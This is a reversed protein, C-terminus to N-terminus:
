FPNFNANRNYKSHPKRTNKPKLLDLSPGPIPPKSEYSVMSHNDDDLLGPYFEISSSGLDMPHVLKSVIAIQDASPGVVNTINRVFSGDVTITELSRASLPYPDVQPSSSLAIKSVAIRFSIKNIFSSQIHVYAYKGGRGLNSHFVNPNPKQKVNLIIVNDSESLLPSEHHLTERAMHQESKSLKEDEPDSRTVNSDTSDSDVDDITPARVLQKGSMLNDILSSFGAGKKNSIELSAHRKPSSLLPVSVVSDVDSESLAFSQKTDVSHHAATPSFSENEGSYGNEFKTQDTKMPSLPLSDGLVAARIEALQKHVDKSLRDFRYNLKQFHRDIQPDKSVEGVMSRPLTSSMMSKKKAALLKAEKERVQQMQIDLIWDKINLSSTAQLPKTSLVFIKDCAYLETDKEPNTYVYPMRNAKPGMNMNSFTGRLLGLPIIGEGVLYKYLEGYTRKPLNEPINMQYLCSGTVSNIKSIARRLKPKNQDRKSPSSKESNGPTNPLHASEEDDDGDDAQSSARNNAKDVERTAKAALDAREM